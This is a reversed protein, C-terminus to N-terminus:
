SRRSYCRYALGNIKVIYISQTLYKYDIFSKQTIFKSFGSALSESDTDLEEDAFLLLWDDLDAEGASALEALDAEGAGALESDPDSGAEGTVGADCADRTDGVEGAEGADLDRELLKDPEADGDLLGEFDGTPDREGDGPLLAELIADAVDATDAREAVGAPETVDISDLADLLLLSEDRALREVLWLLCDDLLLLDFDLEALGFLTADFIDLDDDGSTAFTWCPSESSLSPEIIPLFFRWGILFVELTDPLSDDSLSSVVFFLPDSAESCHLNIMLWYFKLM